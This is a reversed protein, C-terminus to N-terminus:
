IIEDNSFHLFRSILLFRSRKMMNKIYLQSLIHDKCWYDNTRPPRVIVMLLHIAIFIKIEYLTTGNQWKTEYYKKNESSMRNITVSAYKNTQECIFENPLFEQIFLHLNDSLALLKAKKSSDPLFPPQSANVLDNEDAIVEDWQYELIWKSLYIMLLLLCVKKM